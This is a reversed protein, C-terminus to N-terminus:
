REHLFPSFAPASVSFADDHWVKLQFEFPMYAHHIALRRSYKQGLKFVDRPDAYFLEPRRLDASTSLFDLVVVHTTADWMSTFMAEIFAWHNQRLRHNFVGIALAMASKGPLSGMSSDRCEFAGDTGHRRGAEEILEPVVDVGRYSGAWGRARLFSLFDGFGCGVDLVSTYEEERLGEIAGLFRVDQLGKTWGLTRPDPGDELWRERYRQRTEELDPDEM